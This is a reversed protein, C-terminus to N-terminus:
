IKNKLNEILTAFYASKEPYLLILKEYIDIARQYFEQKVYIEALTESVSEDSSGEESKARAPSAPLEGAELYDEKSFYDGGVMVYEPKPKAPAPHAARGELIKVTEARSNFWLAEASVAKRIKDPDKGCRRSIRERRAATFWPYQELVRDLEKDSLQELNVM